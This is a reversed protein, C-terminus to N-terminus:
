LYCSAKKGTRYWVKWLWHNTNMYLVVIFIPTSQLNKGLLGSWGLAIPLQGTHAWLCAMGWLLQLNLRIRLRITLKCWQNSNYHHYYKRWCQEKWIMIMLVHNNFWKNNFTKKRKLICNESEIDAIALGLRNWTGSIKTTTKYKTIVTPWIVLPIYHSSLKMHHGKWIIAKEYSPLKMHHCNWIIAIEYSPLKM